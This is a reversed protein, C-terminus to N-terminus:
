AEHGCGLDTLAQDLMSRASNLFPWRDSRERYMAAQDLFNRVEGMRQVFLKV